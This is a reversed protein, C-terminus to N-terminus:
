NKSWVPIIRVHGPLVFRPPLKQPAFAFGVLRSSLWSRPTAAARGRAKLSRKAETRRVGVARRARQRTRLKNPHSLLRM